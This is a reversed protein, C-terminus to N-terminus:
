LWLPLIRLYLTRARVETSLGVPVGFAHCTQKPEALSYLAKRLIRAAGRTSGRRPWPARERSSPPTPREGFNGLDPDRFTLQKLLFKWRLM